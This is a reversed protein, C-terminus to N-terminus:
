RWEALGREDWCHHCCRPFWLVSTGHADIPRPGLNRATGNTLAITCWVCQTGRQQSSSLAAPDPVAIEATAM